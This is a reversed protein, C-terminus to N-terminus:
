QESPEQTKSKQNKEADRHRQLGQLVLEASISTLAVDGIGRALVYRATGSTAKKDRATLAILTEDTIEEPLETPLKQAVLAARLTIQVSEPTIGAAEGIWAASLMGIAIAEGHKYRRYNTASELAHGITHGYNLIARLGTEEREDSTVVDAKIACSRAVLDAIDATQNINIPSQLRELIDPARIVGYKVVEALGSRIERRPMTKLVTPDIFVARPQHFAGILNKGARFDVGTKGGVSSDVMALLTTPVQVYDLGRLYTAAVFGAMDGVVGGGLAIILTKRDIRALAYLASYLRAIQTLHKHREGAPFVITSVEFGAAALSKQVLAGYYKNVVPQTIVVARSSRAVGLCNTGLASLAGDNIQIEYSRGESLSVSVTM